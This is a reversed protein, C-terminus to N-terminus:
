GPLMSRLIFAVREEVSTEPLYSLRYGLSRYTGAMMDFTAVAEEFSQKRERDNRFIDEWPPAIFVLPNYRLTHNAAAMDPPVTLGCLQLYGTIDPIGRDFFVPAQIGLHADYDTVSQRFMRRAFASRNGWPLADGGAAVQERIVARGTEPVCTYGSHRLADIIVTKGMGPGGTLIYYNTQLM